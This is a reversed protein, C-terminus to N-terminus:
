LSGKQSKKIYRYFEFFTDFDADKKELHENLQERCKDCRLATAWKYIDPIAKWCKRCRNGM